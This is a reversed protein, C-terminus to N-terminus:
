RIGTDYILTDVVTTSAPVQLLQSQPPRPLGSNSIEGATLIYSGAAIKVFFKGVTDSVVNAIFMSNVANTITVPAHSLPATNPDGPRSVPSVPWKLVVGAIASTRTTDQPAGTSRLHVIASSTQGCLINAKVGPRCDTMGFGIKDASVIYSGTCLSDFKASGDSSTLATQNVANPGTLHVTASSIPAGSASDQVRVTLTNNCCKAPPEPSNTNRCSVACIVLIPVLLHFAKM